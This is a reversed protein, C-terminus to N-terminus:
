TRMKKVLIGYLVCANLISIITTSIALGDLGFQKVLFYNLILKVFIAFIIVYLPSKSDGYSYLARTLSDRIVYPLISFCLYFFVSAVMATSHADFAGRQFLIRIIDESWVCGVIVAPICLVVMTKISKILLRAVEKNNGQAIVEGIRPFVPVLFATLLVGLPMQVLRNALVLATWSGQELDRCFFSDVFVILQSVVTALLAPYLIESFTKQNLSTSLNAQPNDKLHNKKIDVLAPIQLVLSLIGGVSTGIALALGSFSDGMLFVAVILAVNIMAPSLSPELYKKYCNLVGFLIGIPGAIIILPLLIDINLLTLNFYEPNAQKNVFINLLYPKFVFLFLCIALLFYTTRFVIKKLFTWIEQASHEFIYKPLAAVMASYFPGGVGGFIIYFNGTFLYAMNFADAQMSTGFYHAIVLDRTLGLIKSIITLFAVFSAVRYV